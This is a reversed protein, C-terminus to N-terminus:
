KSCLSPNGNNINWTAVARICTHNLPIRKYVTFEESDELGKTKQKDASSKLSLTSWRRKLNPLFPKHKFHTKSSSRPKLIILTKELLYAQVNTLNSAPERAQLIGHRIISGYDTLHPGEYNVIQSELKKLIEMTEARKNAQAILRQAERMSRWALVTSEYEPHYSPTIELMKRVFKYFDTRKHFPKM